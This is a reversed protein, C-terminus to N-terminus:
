ATPSDRLSDAWITSSMRSSSQAANDRPSVTFSEENPVNATRWFDCRMPRLGFVPSSTGIAGRRTSTNRGLWTSLATMFPCVGCGPPSSQHRHERSKAFFRRFREAGDALDRGFQIDRLMHQPEPFATERLDTRDLAGAAAAVIAGFIDIEQAADARQQIALTERDLTRLLNKSVLARAMDHVEATR